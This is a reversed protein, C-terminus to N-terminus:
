VCPEEVEGIGIGEGIIQSNGWVQDDGVREELALVKTDAPDM